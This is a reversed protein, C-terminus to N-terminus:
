CGMRTPSKRYAALSSLRSKATEDKPIFPLGRKGRVIRTTCAPIDGQRFRPLSQLVKLVGAGFGAGILPELSGTDAL